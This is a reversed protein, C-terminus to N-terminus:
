RTMSGSASVNAARPGEDKPYCIDKPGENYRTGDASIFKNFYVHIEIGGFKSKLEVKTIKHGQDLNYQVSPLKLFQKTCGQDAAELVLRTDVDGEYKFYEPHHIDISGYALSGFLLWVTLFTKM